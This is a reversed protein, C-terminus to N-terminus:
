FIGLGGRHALSLAVPRSWKLSSLLELFMILKLGYSKLSDPLSWHGGRNRRDTVEVVIFTPTLEDRFDNKIKNRKNPRKYPSLYNILWFQLWCVTGIKSFLQFFLNGVFIHIMYSIIYSFRTQMPDCKVQCIVDSLLAVAAIPFDQYIVADAFLVGEGM